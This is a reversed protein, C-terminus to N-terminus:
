ASSKSFPGFKPQVLTILDKGKMVISETPLGCNFAVIDLKEISSDFFTEVNLLPGFPPVGGIILGFREKIVEPDEFDCKEGVSTTVAKM